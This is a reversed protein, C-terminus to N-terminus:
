APEELQRRRALEDDVQVGDVRVGDVDHQRRDRQRVRVDDVLDDLHEVVLVQGDGDVEVNRTPVPAVAEVRERGRQEDRDPRREAGRELPGVLPLRQDVREGVGDGDHAGGPTARLAAALRAARVPGVGSVAALEAVDCSWRLPLGGGFHDVIDAALVPGVSPFSQLLHVGFAARDAGPSRIKPREDLTTHRRKGTWAHLHRLVAVTDPLDRTTTIGVGRRQVSWLLARLQSRTIGPRGGTVLWGGSSWRLRGEVLLVAVALGAAIRAMEAALRGDRLSAVLDGLEKRQVGVLGLPSPWLVDAGRREPEGSTRGLARVSPPERPAVQVGDIGSDGDNSM